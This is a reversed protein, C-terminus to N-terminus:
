LFLIKIFFAFLALFVTGLAIMELINDSETMGYKEADEKTPKFM